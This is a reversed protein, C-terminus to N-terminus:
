LASLTEPEAPAEVPAATRFKESMQRLLRTTAASLTPPREIALANDAAAQKSAAEAAQAAVKEDVFPNEIGPIPKLDVNQHAYEM